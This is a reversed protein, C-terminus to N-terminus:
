SLWPPLTESTELTDFVPLRLTEGGEFVLTQLYAPNAQMIYHAFTEESYIELAISDFTDGACAIYDTYSIIQAM